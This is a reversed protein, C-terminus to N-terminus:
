AEAQASDRAKIEAIRAQIEEMKEKNLPYYKMAVLNFLLGIITMGFMIFLTVYKLADSYPTNVDPLADRFGISAFLLGAIMPSAASVCKDVFSFLTGMMGPVYRGSRYVEYDACDAIMPLVINGSVGQFGSSLITLLILAVTFFTFGTFGDYGPLNLTKPDGFMWLCASLVNAILAGISGLVLAQKQGFRTAIFGAGVVCFLASAVSTYMTLGGALAYNGALVGYLVVGTASVRTQSAIKDTCAAVILMQIAKNHKITDWYDRPRVLQPKGTGFFETRDKPAIAIVACITCFISVGCCLVWLDHFLEASYMTGYKPVLLNSVYMTLGVSMILLNIGDFMAFLPRQKPDNTLCAQGARTITNQFTFFIYYVVAVAFFFIVRINEPLHHTVNFMIFSTVHLGINGLIMFPRNKGFKGNTKDVLYGIFPDTVGDWVRMITAFSSALIVAMGVFGIMYYSAYAMLFFYMNTAVNNLNFGYIRLKSAHHLGDPTWYKAYKSAAAASTTQM